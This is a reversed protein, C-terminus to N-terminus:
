EFADRISLDPIFNLKPNKQAAARALYRFQDRLLILSVDAFTQAIYFNNSNEYRQWGCILLKDEVIAFWSYDIEGWAFLQEIMEDHITNPDDAVYLNGERDSIARNWEGMRKISKPNKYIEIEEGPKQWQGHFKGIFEENVSADPNFDQERAKSVGALFKPDGQRILNHLNINERVIKM